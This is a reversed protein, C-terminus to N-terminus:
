EPKTFVWMYSGILDKFSYRANDFRNKEKARLVFMVIVSDEDVYAVAQFQTAAYTKVLAKKHDKTELSDSRGIVINSVEKKAKDINATSLKTVNECGPIKKSITSIYMVTPSTKFSSRNPFLEADRGSAVGSTLDLNWEKPATIEFAYGDGRVV